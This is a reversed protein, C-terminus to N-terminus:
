NDIIITHLLNNNRTGTDINPHYIPTQFKLVPPELPYKDPIAISLKFNGSEYPSNNPGKLTAEFNDLSDDKVPKCTVGWPPNMSLINMERALRANRIKSNMM